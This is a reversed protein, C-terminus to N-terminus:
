PGEGIRHRLSVRQKYQGTINGNHKWKNKKKMKQALEELWQKAANSRPASTSYGNPQRMTWFWWATCDMPLDISQVNSSSMNSPKNKQAVSVHWLPPWVANTCVAASVGWVLASATLCPEPKEQPTAGPPIQRYWPHFHPTKHSKEGVGCEMPSGGVAGCM